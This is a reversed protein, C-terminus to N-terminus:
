ANYLMLPYNNLAYICTLLADQKNKHKQLCPDLEQITSLPFANNDVTMM